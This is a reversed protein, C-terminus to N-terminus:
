VQEERGGRSLIHGLFHSCGHHQTVEPPAKPALTHAVWCAGGCHGADVPSLRAVRPVRPRPASLVSAGSTHPQGSPTRKQGVGEQGWHDLQTAAEM